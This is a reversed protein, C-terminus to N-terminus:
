WTKRLMFRARREYGDAAKDKCQNTKIRRIFNKNELIMRVQNSLMDLFKFLRRHRLGDYKMANLTRTLLRYLALNVTLPNEEIAEVYERITLVNIDLHVRNGHRLYPYIATQNLCKNCEKVILECYRKSELAYETNQYLYGFVKAKLEWPLANVLKVFM